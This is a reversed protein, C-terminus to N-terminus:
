RNNETNMYVRCFHQGQCELCMTLGLFVHISAANEAIEGEIRFLNGEYKSFAM